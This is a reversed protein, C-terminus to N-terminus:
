DHNWIWVLLPPNQPHKTLCNPLVVNLLALPLDCPTFSRGCVGEAVCISSLGTTAVIEVVKKGFAQPSTYHRPKPPISVERYRALYIKLAESYNEFGLSTM